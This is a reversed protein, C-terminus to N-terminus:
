ERQIYISIRRILDQEDLDFVLCEDTHSPRGDFRMEESLEVAIVRRDASEAVRAITMRYDALTPMLGELYELYPQRGRYVDKPGLPGIRVVDDTLCLRAADWDFRSIADLYREATNM